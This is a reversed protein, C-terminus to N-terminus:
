RGVGTMAHNITGHTRQSFAPSRTKGVRGLITDLLDADDEASTAIEIALRGKFTHQDFKVSQYEREDLTLIEVGYVDIKPNGDKDRELSYDIRADIQLLLSGTEEDRIDATYERQM